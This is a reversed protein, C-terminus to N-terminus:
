SDTRAMARVMIKLALKYPNVQYRGSAVLRRLEEVRAERVIDGGATAIAKDVKSKGPAKNTVRM